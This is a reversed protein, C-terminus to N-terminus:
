NNCRAHFIAGEHMDDDRTATIISENWFYRFSQPIM